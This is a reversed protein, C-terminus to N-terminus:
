DADPVRIAPIAAEHVADNFAPVLESEVQELRELQATLQGNLEEFVARSQATPGADNRAVVEALGSIKDNLRIPFNLPDQSSESRTQIIAEEIEALAALLPEAEAKLAEHAEHGEAHALVADVQARVARIRNVARHAADVAAHIELLLSLQAAYAEPTTDLRPDGAIELTETVELDGSTLRVQYAGPVVQPGRTGGGWMVAGPVDTADPLRM